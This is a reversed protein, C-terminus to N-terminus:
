QALERSGAIWELLDREDIRVSRNLRVAALEGRAVATYITSMPLTTAESVARVSLLRPVGTRGPKM